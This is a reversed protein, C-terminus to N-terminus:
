DAYVMDLDISTGGPAVKFKVEDFKPEGRLASANYMAWGDLPMGTDARDFVADGDIDHWVSVSYEGAPVNSLTVSVTGPQPNQVIKGYSGENKLFQAATQLSVYLPGKAARVGNIAISVDGAQAAEASALAAIGALITLVARKM